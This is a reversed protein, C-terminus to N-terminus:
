VAGEASNVRNRVSYLPLADPTHKIGADIGLYEMIEFSNLSYFTIARSSAVMCGRGNLLHTMFNGAQM